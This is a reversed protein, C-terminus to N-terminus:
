KKAVIEFNWRPYHIRIDKGGENSRAEVVAESSTLGVLKGSDKRDFGTDVPYMEVNQGEKLGIPDAEVKVNDTYPSSLIKAVADKGDLETPKPAKEKAAAIAENYRDRWAITKPYNKKNFFSEDYAGPLLFLWDFIWCAHIDALKPGDDNGLIWKRGDSLCQELFDYNARLNALGLPRLGDQTEKNWSRGWLEERDQQFGPDKMLDMDTPITAGAHKFVVADTWKEFLKELALETPNSASIPKYKSDKYVSELKELILLTDCYIDRGIALVPIRRYNVGLAALNPRPQTIPQEARTYPIGRLAFYATVKAAWASLSWLFLIPEETPAM